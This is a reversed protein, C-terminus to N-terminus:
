LYLIEKWFLIDNDCPNAKALLWLQIYYTFKHWRSLFWMLISNLAQNADMLTQTIDLNRRTEWAQFAGREAM